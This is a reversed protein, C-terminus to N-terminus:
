DPRQCSEERIGSSEKPRRLIRRTGILEKLFGLFKAFKWRTQMPRMPNRLTRICDWLHGVHSACSEAPSSPIMAFADPIGALNRYSAFLNRSVKKYLFITGIPDVLSRPGPLASAFYNVFSGRGQLASMACKVFSRPGPIAFGVCKRRGKLARATCPPEKELRRRGVGM